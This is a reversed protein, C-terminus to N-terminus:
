LRMAAHANKRQSAKQLPGFRTFACYYSLAVKPNEDMQVERLCNSVEQSDPTAWTFGYGRLAQHLM